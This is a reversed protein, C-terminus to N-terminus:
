LLELYALAPLSPLFFYDGGVLQVFTEIQAIHRFPTAPITMPSAAGILPDTEDYLVAFNANNMWTQQVFEFQRQIDTNLAIFLLGRDQGDDIMRNAIDPGFKRARRLIRHRNAAQVLTAQDSPRPALGDRPNGRRVHSGMPCGLGLPDTDFFGFANDPGGGALPPRYGEPCLLDGTMSRGVAREALWEATFATTTGTDSEAMCAANKAMSTWFAAVDQKLERVVMYSGDLGLDGCDQALPHPRLLGSTRDDTPVVPGPAVEHHGNMHGFLIEGLPVGHWADEPGGVVAQADFPVPQSIGDAFGFHERAIGKEDPRLNLPLRRVVEVKHLALVETVQACWADASADDPTYLLLLAHVTVPTSSQEERHGTATPLQAQGPEVSALADRQPTNASWRPGGAVVTPSWVDKRRDGLRRLRDEQLMGERFPAAFSNQARAPLGMKALGTGTFALAVGTPARGDAPTVPAVTRLAQLWAGGKQGADWNFELFLARGTPLHGFGSVVLGQTMGAHPDALAWSGTPTNVSGRDM